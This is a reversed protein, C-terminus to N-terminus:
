GALHSAERPHRRPDLQHPARAHASRRVTASYASANKGQRFKRYLQHRVMTQKVTPTSKAEKDEKEVEAVALALRPPRSRSM